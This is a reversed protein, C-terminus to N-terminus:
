RSRGNPEDTSDDETAVTYTMSRSSAPITVTKMDGDDSAVFNSGAAESITLNVTLNTTVARSATVRFVVNAGETVAASGQRAISVMPPVMLTATVTTSAPGNTTGVVARVQFSYETGNTLGTVTYTTTTAGSNSIDMWSEWVLPSGSGQRYQYKSINSNGSDDWSLTVRGDGATASLGMPATPPIIQGRVEFKLVNSFTSWSEGM